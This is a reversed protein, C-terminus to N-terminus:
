IKIIKHLACRHFLCLAYNILGLTDGHNPKTDYIIGARLAYFM